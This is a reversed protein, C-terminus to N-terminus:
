ILIFIILVKIYFLYIYSMIKISYSIKFKESENGANMFLDITKEINIM